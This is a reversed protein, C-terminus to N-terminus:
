VNLKMEQLAVVITVLWDLLYKNRSEKMKGTNFAHTRLDNPKRSKLWVWLADISEDLHLVNAKCTRIV